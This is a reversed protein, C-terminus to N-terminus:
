GEREALKPCVAAGHGAIGFLSQDNNNGSLFDNEELSSENGPFPIDRCRPESETGLRSTEAGGRSAEPDAFLDPILGRGSHDELAPDGGSLKGPDPRVPAVLVQDERPDEPQLSEIRVIGVGTVAVNVKVAGVPLVEDPCRGAMSADPEPVRLHDIEIVTDRDPSPDLDPLFGPVIGSKEKDDSPDGNSQDRPLCGAFFPPSIDGHGGDGLDNRDNGERCCGEGEAGAAM